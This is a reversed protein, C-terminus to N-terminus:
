KCSANTPMLLRQLRDRESPPITSKDIVLLTHLDTLVYDIVIRVLEKPLTLVADDVYRRALAAAQTRLVLQRKLYHTLIHNSMWDWPQHRSVLIKAHIWPVPNQSDPFAALQFRQLEEAVIVIDPGATTVLDLRERRLDPDAILLLRQLDQCDFRCTEALEKKRLTRWSQLVVSMADTSLMRNNRFVARSLQSKSAFIRCQTALIRLAEAGYADASFYPLYTENLVEKNTSFLRHAVMGRSGPRMQLWVGIGLAGGKNRVLEGFDRWRAECWAAESGLEGGFGWQSNVRAERDADSRVWRTVASNTSSGCDPRIRILRQDSIQFNLSPRGQVTREPTHQVTNSASHESPATGGFESDLEDRVRCQDTVALAVPASGLGLLETGAAAIIITNSVYDPGARITARVSRDGLEASPRRADPFPAPTHLQLSTRIVSADAATAASNNPSHNQLMDVWRPAAERLQDDSIHTLITKSLRRLLDARALRDPQGVASSDPLGGLHAALADAVAVRRAVVARLLLRAVWRYPYVGIGVGPRGAIDQNKDRANPRSLKAACDPQSFFLRLSPADGRDCCDAVFAAADNGLWDFPRRERHDLELRHDLDLPFLWERHGSELRSRLRRTWGSDEDWYRTSAGRLARLSALM